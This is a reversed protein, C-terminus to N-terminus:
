GIYAPSRTLTMSILERCMFADSPDLDTIIPTSRSREGPSFVLPFVRGHSVHKTEWPGVGVISVIEDVTHYFVSDRKVEQCTSANVEKIVASRSPLSPNQLNVSQSELSSSLFLSFLM